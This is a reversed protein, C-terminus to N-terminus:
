AARETPIRFFMALADAGRELDAVSGMVCQFSYLNAVARHARAGADLLASDAAEYRAKVRRDREETDAEESGLFLPDDYQATIRQHGWGAARRLSCYRSIAERQYNALPVYNLPDAIEGGDVARKKRAMEPTPDIRDAERRVDAADRQPRGNPERKGIKRPRGRSGKGM